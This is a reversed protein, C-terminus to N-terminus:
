RIVSGDQRTYTTPHGAKVVLVSAPAQGSLQLDQEHFGIGAAVVVIAGFLAVVLIKLHTTRGATILSHDM